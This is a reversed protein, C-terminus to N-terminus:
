RRSQIASWAMLLAQMAPTLQADIDQKLEAFAVRSLNHPSNPIHVHIM